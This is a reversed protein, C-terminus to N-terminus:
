VGKAKLMEAYQLLQNERINIGIRSLINNIIDQHVDEAWDLEKTLSMVGTGTNIVNEDVFVYADTVPDIYYDLYPTVPRRLYIFDVYQLDKPAFQIFGNYFTCVPNKYTPATIEKTLRSTFQQETLIEVESFREETACDINKLRKYRISSVHFYDDPIIAEGSSSVSLPMTGDRGLWVKFNSLDDSIKQTIEYVQRNFPANLQYEEPLGYKQKFIAFSALPLMLNFSDISINGSRQEKNAVFEIYQFIDKLKM